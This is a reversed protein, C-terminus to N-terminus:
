KTLMFELANQFDAVFNDITLSSEKVKNRLNKRLDILQPINSALEVAIRIYDQDSYAVLNSLGVHDLLSKTATCTIREPDYRTIIPVGMNLSNIATTIGIFPFTDLSIDAKQYAKIFDFSNQPEWEFIIRNKEIGRRGFEQFVKNMTYESFSYKLFLKSEPVQKLIEAWTNYLHSNFKSARSFSTFTIYGNQNYPLDNLEPLQAYIESHTFGGQLPCFKEAFNKEQEAPIGDKSFIIYDIESIGTTGWYGYWTAQIRAPKHIFMALDPVEATYGYISPMYGSTDILIDLDDQYITEACDAINKGTLYCFKNVINKVSEIARREQALIPKAYVYIDYRNRDIRQFIKEFFDWTPSNLLEANFFGIKFKFKNKDLPSHEYPKPQFHQKYIMPFLSAFKLYDQNKFRPDYFSFHSLDEVFKLKGQKKIALLNLDNGSETEGLKYFASAFQHYYNAEEPNLKIAQQFLPICQNTKGFDRVAMALLFHYEAEKPQKQIALQLLQVGLAFEKHGLARILSYGLYAHAQANDPLSNIETSLLNICDGFRGERFKTIATELNINTTQKAM